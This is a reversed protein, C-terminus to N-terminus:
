DQKSNNESALMVINEMMEQNIGHEARLKYLLSALRNRKKTSLNLKESQNIEDVADMVDAFLDENVGHVRDMWGYPKKTCQEIHRALDEGINIGGTGKLLRSVQSVGRDIKEALKTNNGCESKLQILNARRVKFLLEKDM